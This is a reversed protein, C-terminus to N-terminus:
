RPRRPLVSAMARSLLSTICGLFAVDAGDADTIRGTHGLTEFALPHPGRLIRGVDLQPVLDIPTRGEFRQSWPRRRRAIWPAPMAVGLIMLAPRGPALDQDDTPM